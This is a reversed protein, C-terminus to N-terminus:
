SRIRRAIDAAIVPAAVEPEYSALLTNDPAILYLRATHDVALPGPAGPHRTVLAGCSQVLRDIRKIDGTIGLIRSDFSQTYAKLVAPTDHDPDVSVFLPTLSAGGSGLERLVFRVRALTAPCVSSCQTFGFFVLKYRDSLAGRELTRGSSDVLGTLSADVAQGGSSRVLTAVYLAAMAAAAVGFLAWFRWPPPRRERKRNGTGM